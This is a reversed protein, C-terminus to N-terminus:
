MIIIISLITYIGKLTDYYLYQLSIITIDDLLQTVSVCVTKSIILTYVTYVSNDIIRCM